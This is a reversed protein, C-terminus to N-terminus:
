SALAEACRWCDSVDSVPDTHIAFRGPRIVRGADPGDSYRVAIDRRSGAADILTVVAPRLGLDACRADHVLVHDGRRLSDWQFRLMM